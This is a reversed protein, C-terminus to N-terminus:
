SPFTTMLKINSKEWLNPFILLNHACLGGVVVGGFFLTAM